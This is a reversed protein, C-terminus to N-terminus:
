QDGAVLQSMLREAQGRRQRHQASSAESRQGNIGGHFWQRIGPHRVRPQDGDRRRHMGRQPQAHANGLAHARRIGLRMDAEVAEIGEEVSCVKQTTAQRIRQDATFVLLRQARQGLCQFGLTLDRSQGADRRAARRGRRHQGAQWEGYGRAVRQGLRVAVCPQHAVFLRRNGAVNLGTTAAQVGTRVAGNRGDIAPAEEDHRARDHQLIDARLHARAHAM